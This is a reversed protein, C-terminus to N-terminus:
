RVIYFVPHGWCCENCFQWDSPVEYEVKEGGTQTDEDSESSTDEVNDNTTDSSSDSAYRRHRRHRRRRHRHSRGGEPEASHQRHGKRAKEPSTSRSPQGRAPEVHVYGCRCPLRPDVPVPHPGFSHPHHEYFYKTQVPNEKTVEVPQPAAGTAVSRRTAQFCDPCNCNFPAKFTYSEPHAAHGHHHHHYYSHHAPWPVHVNTSWNSGADFDRQRPLEVPKPAKRYHKTSHKHTQPVYEPEPQPERKSYVRHPHTHRAQPPVSTSGESADGAPSHNKSKRAEERAAYARREAPPTTPSSCRTARGRFPFSTGDQVDVLIPHPHGNRLRGTFTRIGKGPGFFEPYPHQVPPM